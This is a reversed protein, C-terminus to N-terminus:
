GARRLSRRPPSSSSSVVCQAGVQTSLLAPIAPGCGGLPRSSGGSRRNASAPWLKPLGLSGSLLRRLTPESGLWRTKHRLLPVPCSSPTPSAKLM